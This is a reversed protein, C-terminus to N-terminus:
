FQENSKVWVEKIKSDTINGDSDINCEFDWVPVLGQLRCMVDVPGSITVIIENNDESGKVEVVTIREDESHLDEALELLQNTVKLKSDEVSFPLWKSLSETIDASIRAKLKEIGEATSTFTSYPIKGSGGCRTCITDSSVSAGINFGQGDCESCKNLRNLDIGQPPNSTDLKITPQYGEKYESMNEEV